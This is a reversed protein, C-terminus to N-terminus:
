CEVIDGPIQHKVLYRTATILAHLKDNSTMTFPRVSRIIECLEADFDNPFEARPKAPKPAAPPKAALKELRKTVVELRTALQEVKAADRKTSRTSKPRELQYGITRVLASNVAQKWHSMPSYILLSAFSIM